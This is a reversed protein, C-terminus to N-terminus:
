PNEDIAQPNFYEDLLPDNEKARYLIKKATAATVEVSVASDPLPQFDPLVVGVGGREATKRDFDWRKDPLNDADRYVTWETYAEAVSDCHDLPSFLVAGQTVRYRPEIVVTRDSVFKGNVL